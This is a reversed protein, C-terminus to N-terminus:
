VFRVKVEKLFKGSLVQKLRRLINRRIDLEQPLSPDQIAENIRTGAIFHIIDCDLFLSALRTAANLKLREPNDHEELLRATLALTVVGETVLDFGEMQSVPPVEADLDLDLLDMDLPRGLERSLIAATTGGCIVKRGPFALALRVLEKDMARNVPPGTFVLVERPKRFYIVGCSADDKARHGDLSMAKQVVARSLQRASITPYEGLLEKLFAAEADSGWGMPTARQGVGAQTIGDSCIVIRDGPRATFRAERIVADRGTSTPLHMQTQPVPVLEGERILLFPPNDYDVIHTEGQRNMDVITFTSYAIQRNSCVPLTDLITRAARAIDADESVYRAAMTATLHALVSAKIGSGLGDALVSVIREGGDLKQSLFVDGCAAQGAKREQAHDVEIFFGASSGM